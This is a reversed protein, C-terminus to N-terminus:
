MNIGNLLLNKTICAQSYYKNKYEIRCQNPISVLKIPVEIDRGKFNIFATKNIDFKSIGNEFQKGAQTLNKSIEKSDINKISGVANKASNTFGTMPNNDAEMQANTFCPERECHYVGTAPDKHGGNDDLSSIHAFCNLTILSLFTFIIINNTM